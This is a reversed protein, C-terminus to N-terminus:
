ILEGRELEMKNVCSECYYDRGTQGYGQENTVYRGCVCCAEVHIDLLEAYDPESHVRTHCDYCLTVLLSPDHEWAKLGYVYHIHHVHPHKPKGHCLRCKFKDRQLIRTSVTKWRPDQLQEQYTMGRKGVSRLGEELLRQLTYFFPIHLAVVMLKLRVSGLCSRVYVWNNEKTSM